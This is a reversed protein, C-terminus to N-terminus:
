SEEPWPRLTLTVVSRVPTGDNLFLKFNETISVVLGMFLMKGWQFLCGVTQSGNSQAPDLRSRIKGSLTTVDIGQEYSDFHLTLVLNGPTTKTWQVSNGVDSWSMTLSTTYTEPNYQVFIPDGSTSGDPGLPTLSAKNESAITM